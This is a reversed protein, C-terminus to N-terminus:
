LLLPLPPVPLFFPLPHLLSFSLFSGYHLSLCPFSSFFLFTICTPFFPSPSSPSSLFPFLVFYFFFSLHYLKSILQSSFLYPIFSPLVFSMSFFFSFLHLPSSSSCSLQLFSIFFFHQAFSSLELMFYLFSPTRFPPFLFSNFVPILSPFFYLPLRQAHSLFSSFPFIIPPSLLPFFSSSLFRFLFLMLLLFSSLSVPFFVYFLIETPQFLICPLFAVCCLFTPFALLFPLVLLFFLSFLFFSLLLSFLHSFYFLHM